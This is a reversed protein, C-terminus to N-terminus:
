ATKKGRRTKGAKRGSAGFSKLFQMLSGGVSPSSRSLVDTNMDPPTAPKPTAGSNTLSKGSNVSRIISNAANKRALNGEPTPEASKPDEDNARGSNGSFADEPDKKVLAKMHEMDRTNPMANTGDPFEALKGDNGIMAVSPFGNIKADALPTEKLVAEDIHAMPLKRGEENALKDWLPKFTKCHGCWEAGIFVLVIKNNKILDVLAQIDTPKKVDINAPAGGNKKAKKAAKGLKRTKKGKRGLVTNLFSRAM